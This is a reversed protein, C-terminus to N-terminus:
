GHSLPPRSHPPLSVSIFVQASDHHPAAAERVVVACAATAAVCCHAGSPCHDTHDQADYGAHEGGTSKDHHMHMAADHSGSPHPAPSASSAGSHEVWIHAAAPMSVLHLTVLLVLMYQILRRM